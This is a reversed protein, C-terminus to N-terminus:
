IAVDDGAVTPWLRQQFFAVAEFYDVEDAAPVLALGVGALANGLRVTMRLAAVAERLSATASDFSGECRLAVM